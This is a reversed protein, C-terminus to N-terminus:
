ARKEELAALVAATVQTPGNHDTDVSVTAVEAYLPTREELLAKLRARMDGWLLPRSANLGVRRGAQTASVKLWVVTHDALAARIEPSMVAGGGLSVVAPEELAALTADVELARFHQEGDHAFIDAIPKGAVDEIRADVDIFAYGLATAVARGVTSKGAGPAGVLAIANM